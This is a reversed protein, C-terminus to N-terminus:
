WFGPGGEIRDLEQLIEQRAKAIERQDQRAFCRDPRRTDVALDTWFARARVKSAQRFVSHIQESKTVLFLYSSHFSKGFM